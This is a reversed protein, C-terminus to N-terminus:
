PLGKKIKMMKNTSDSFNMNWSVFSSHSERLNWIPIKSVPLPFYVLNRGCAKVSCPNAISEPTNFLSTAISTLMVIMRAKTERRRTTDITFFSSKISIFFSM